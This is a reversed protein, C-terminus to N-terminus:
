QSNAFSALTPIAEDGLKDIISQAQDFTKDSLALALTPLHPRKLLSFARVVMDKQEPTLSALAPSTAVAYQLDPRRYLLEVFNANSKPSVLGGCCLAAIADKRLLCSIWALVSTEHGAAILKAALLTLNEPSSLLSGSSDIVQHVVSWFAFQTKKFVSPRLSQAVVSTDTVFPHDAIAVAAADVATAVSAATAEEVTSNLSAIIEQLRPILPNLSISGRLTLRDPSFLDAPIRPLSDGFVKTALLVETTQPLLTLGLQCAWDRLAYAAFIQHNQCLDEIAAHVNRVKRLHNFPELRESLLKAGLGLTSADEKSTSAKVLEYNYAGLAMTPLTVNNKRLIEELVRTARVADLQVFKNIFWRSLIISLHQPYSDAMKNLFLVIGDMDSVNLYQEGIKTASFAPSKIGAVNILAWFLDELQKPTFRPTSCVGEVADAGAYTNSVALAEGLLDMNQQSIHGLPSTEQSISKHMQELEMTVEEIEGAKIRNALITYKTASGAPILTAISENSLGLERLIKKITDLYSIPTKQRGFYTVFANALARRAQDDLSAFRSATSDAAGVM